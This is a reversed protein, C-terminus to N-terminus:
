KSPIAGVALFAFAASILLCLPSYIWLNFTAFPETPSWAFRDFFFGGVGRALFVLSVAGAAIMAAVGPSRLVGGAWLAILGAAFILVAVVLTVSMAPMKELRPDGIVTNILDRENEGPWIGGFAWYVHIAAIASLLAFTAGALSNM